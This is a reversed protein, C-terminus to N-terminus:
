GGYEWPSEAITLPPVEKRCQADVVEMVVISHDGYCDLIQLVKCEVYAPLNLLIPAATSGEEFPEGNIVGPGVQTPAFFRQAIQQQDCGLVHIAAIRSESLCNYVNSDRRVATMLIPPKFSAQSIWTVTAAGYQEGSRSTMVYMGNSFMRLAKHKAKPDM